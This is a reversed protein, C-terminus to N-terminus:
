TLDGRLITLPAHHRYQFATVIQLFQATDHGGVHFRQSLLNLIRQTKTTLRRNLRSTTNSPWKPWSGCKGGPSRVTKAACWNAWYAIACIAARVSSCSSKPM